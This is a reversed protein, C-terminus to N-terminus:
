RGGGEIAVAQGIMYSSAYTTSIKDLDQNRKQAKV